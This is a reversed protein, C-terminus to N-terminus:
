KSECEHDHIHKIFSNYLLHVEQHKSSKLKTLCTASNALHSLKHLENCSIIESDNNVSWLNKSRKSLKFLEIRMYKIHSIAVMPTQMRM